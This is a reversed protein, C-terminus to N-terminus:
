VCGNSETTRITFAFHGHTILLKVRNFTRTLSSSLGNALGADLLRQLYLRLSYGALVVGVCFGGLYTALQLSRAHLLPRVPDGELGCDDACHDREVQRPLRNTGGLHYSCNGGNLCSLHHRLNETFRHTREDEYSLCEQRDPESPCALIGTRSLKTSWTGVWCICCLSCFSGSSTWSTGTCVLFKWRTTINPDM